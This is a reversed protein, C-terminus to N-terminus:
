LTRASSSFQSDITCPVVVASLVIIWIDPAGVPSITLSPNRSSISNRRHKLSSM